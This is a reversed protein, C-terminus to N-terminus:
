GERRRRVMRQRIHLWQELIGLVAAMLVGVSLSLVFAVVMFVRMYPRMNSIHMMFGIVCLGQVAFPLLVVVFAAYAVAEFSPIDFLMPVMMVLALVLAGYTFRQPLRWFIFRRMPKMTAGAITKRCFKVCFLLNILGMTAGLVCLIAPMYVPINRAVVAMSSAFADIQAPPLAYPTGEFMPFTAVMEAAFETVLTQISRFPPLGARFDPYCVAAAAFTTAVAASILAILFYPQRRKMAVSMSLGLAISPLLLVLGVPGGALFYSGLVGLLLALASQLAGGAILLYGFLGPAVCYLVPFLNTAAIGAGTLFAVLWSPKKYQEGVRPATNKEMM